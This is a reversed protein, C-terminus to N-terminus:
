LYTEQDQDQYQKIVNFLIPSVKSTKNTVPRKNPMRHEFGTVREREITKWVEQFKPLVAEFWMRNRPITVCSFKELYWYQIEILAYESGKEQQKEFIWKETCHNPTTLGIPRMYEYIPIGPNAKLVYYLIVGRCEYEGVNEYFEVDSEFERFCTELFDCCELNTTHMQVQTQIWYALSPIGNIVRNVVNKIEVLHGLRSGSTVIGDPSAGIFPFEPHQFCGFTADVTCDPYLHEYIMVSVPEYKTGWHTALTTNTYGPETSIVLPKCKEYILSNYLAQSGLVKYINSATVMNHRTLYWEHTRQSPLVISKLKKIHEIIETPDRHKSIIQDLSTNQPYSRVPSLRLDHFYLNLNQKVFEMMVQQNKETDILTDSLLAGEYMTEYITDTLDEHFNPNSYMEPNFKIFEDIESIISSEMEYLIGDDLIESIDCESEDTEQESDSGSETDTQADMNVQTSKDIKTVLEDILTGSRLRTM